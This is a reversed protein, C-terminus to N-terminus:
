TRTWWFSWVILLLAIAAIVGVLVIDLVRTAAAILLFPFMLALGSTTHGKQFVFVAIGVYGMFLSVAIMTHNDIGFVTAADDAVDEADSGLMAQWTTEASFSDTFTEDDYNIEPSVEQFLAPRVNSLEPIGNMFAVSGIDNLVIGQGAVSTTLDLDYYEEMAYAVNIVWQDLYATARGLWDSSELQYSASPNGTFTGYLRLYYQSDTTMSAANDANLYIAGPMNGWQQCPVQHLLTAGDTDLLQITFYQSPDNYPYYPVYTNQYHVLFLLDGDELFNSFVAGGIVDISSEGWIEFLYDEPTDSAWTIGSNASNSGVAAALGGGTDSAWQIDNSNDGATARIVIAYQVDAELGTETVDVEIWDYSTSLEDGDVTGSVIDDGTPLSSEDVEKLSLVVTGPSGTRKILVHFSTITHSTSDTTFAMASWNSGYIDDSAGDNGTNLEEYLTAGYVSSNFLFISSLIITGTLIVRIFNKLKNM